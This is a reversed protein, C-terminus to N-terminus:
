GLEVWGLKVQGYGCALVVIVLGLKTVNCVTHGLPISTILEGPLLASM